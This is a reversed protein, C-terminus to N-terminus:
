RFMAEQVTPSFYRQYLLRLQADKQKIDTDILSKTASALRLAALAGKFASRCSMIASCASIIGILVYITTEVATKADENPFKDGYFISGAYAVLAMCTLM